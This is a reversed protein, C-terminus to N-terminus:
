YERKGRKRNSDSVSRKGEMVISLFRWRAPASTRAAAFSSLPLAGAAFAFPLFATVTPLLAAWAAAALLSSLSSAEELSM